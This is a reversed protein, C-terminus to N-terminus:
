AGKGVVTPSTKIGNISSVFSLSSPDVARAFAATDAFFAAPADTLMTRPTMEVGDDITVGLMYHDIGPTEIALAPLKRLTGIVISFLGKTFTPHQTEEWFSTTDSGSYLKVTVAHPGELYNGSKDQVVGQYSLTRQAVANTCFLALAVVLLVFQLGSKM